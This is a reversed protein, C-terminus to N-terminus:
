WQLFNAENVTPNWKDNILIRKTFNTIKNNKDQKKWYSINLSTM